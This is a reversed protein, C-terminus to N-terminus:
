LIFGRGSCCGQIHLLYAELSLGCLRPSHTQPVRAICEQEQQIYKYLLRCKFVTWRCVCFEPEQDKLTQEGEYLTGEDHAQWLSFSGRGGTRLRWVSYKLMTPPSIATTFYFRMSIPQIVLRPAATHKGVLSRTKAVFVLVLISHYTQMM